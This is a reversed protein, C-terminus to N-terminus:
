RAQPQRGALEDELKREATAVAKTMELRYRELLLEIREVQTRAKLADAQAHAVRRSAEALQDRGKRVRQQSAHLWQEAVTWDIIPAGGKALEARRAHADLEKAVAEELQERETTERRRAESLALSARDLQVKRFDRVKQM